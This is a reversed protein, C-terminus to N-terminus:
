FKIRKISSNQINQKSSKNDNDDEINKHDM